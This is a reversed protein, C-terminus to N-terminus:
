PLGLLVQAIWGARGDEFEVRWWWHGDAAVPGEIVTGTEGETADGAAPANVSQSERLALTEKLTVRTGTGWTEVGYSITPTPAPPETSAEETAPTGPTGPPEPTATPVPLAGEGPPPVDRPQQDDPLPNGAEDIAVIRQHLSPGNVWRDEVGTNDIVWYWPGNDTAPEAGSIRYNAGPELASAEDAELSAEAYAPIPDGELVRFWTGEVMQPGSTPMPTPPTLALIAAQTETAVQNAESTQIAEAQVTAAMFVRATATLNSDAV